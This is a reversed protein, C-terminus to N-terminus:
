FDTELYVSAASLGVVSSTGGVSTWAQWTLLTTAAPLNSNIVGSFSLGDSLRAFQYGVVTTGTPATFLALEYMETADAASKPIGTDIKTVAGTGTRHAIHYNVDAADAVVAIMNAWTTGATPDVDTPAGTNSTMGAFFLRTSNAAAGRSPGFRMVTTFGGFPTSSAGIHYQAAAVRLGAVATTAATTVAYELRRMAQHINATGVNAATPTGTATPVAMGITQVTNANGPPNFWAVKNRALLPQLSSDLGSPGVFAPLLRTALSRVFLKVNNTGPLVDPEHATLMLDGEAVRVHEAGAFAGGSNYQVQGTSGGPSGGGGDGSSGATWQSGTWYVPKALTTSWVSVGVLGPNPTAAGEAIALQPPAQFNLNRAM